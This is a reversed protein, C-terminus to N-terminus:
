LYVIFISYIYVVFFFQSFHLLLVFNLLIDPSLIFHHQLMNFNYIYIYVIFDNIDLHIFVNFICVGDFAFCRFVAFIQDPSKHNSQQLSEM